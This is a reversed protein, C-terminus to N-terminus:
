VTTIGWGGAALIGAMRIYETNKGETDIAIVAGPLQEQRLKELSRVTMELEGPDRARVVMTIEAGTHLRLSSWLARRIGYLLALFAAALLIGLIAMKM